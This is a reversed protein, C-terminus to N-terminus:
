KEQPNLLKRSRESRVKDVIDVIDGTPDASFVLIGDKRVLPTRGELPTLRIEKESEKIELVAGPRLGFIKRMKQPILVRGFKDITTEM